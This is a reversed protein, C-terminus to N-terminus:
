SHCAEVVADGCGRRWSWAGVVVQSQRYRGLHHCLHRRGDRDLRATGIMSQSKVAVAVARSVAIPSRSGSKLVRNISLSQVIRASAERRLPATVERSSLEM